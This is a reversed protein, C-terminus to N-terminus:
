VTQRPRAAIKRAARSLSQSPSDALASVARWVTDPRGVAAVRPRYAFLFRIDFHRHAPQDGAPPIPHVDVDFPADGIAAIDDRALGSEELLERLSAAHVSADTDPECHGGPQWWAGLKRHHVLLVRDSPEHLLFAPATIHGTRSARSFPQDCTELLSLVDAVHRREVDDAPAYRRLAASLRDREGTM